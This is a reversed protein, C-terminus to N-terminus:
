SGLYRRLLPLLAKGPGLLWAVNARRAALEARVAANEGDAMVTWEVESVNRSLYATTLAERKALYPAPDTGRATLTEEATPLPALTEAAKLTDDFRQLAVTQRDSEGHWGNVHVRPETDGCAEDVLQLSISVERPGKERTAPGILTTGPTYAAASSYGKALYWRIWAAVQAKAADGGGTRSGKFVVYGPDVDHQRSCAVDYTTGDPVLFGTSGGEKLLSLQDLEGSRIQRRMADREAQYAAMQRDFAAVGNQQRRTERETAAADLALYEHLLPLDVDTLRLPDPAAAQAKVTRASAVLLLAGVVVVTSVSRM